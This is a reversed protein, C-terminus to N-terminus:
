TGQAHRAFAPGLYTLLDRALSGREDGLALTAVQGPIGDPTKPCEALARGLVVLAVGEAQLLGDRAARLEDASVQDQPRLPTVPTDTRKRPM